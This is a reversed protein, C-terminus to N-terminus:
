WELVREEYELRGKLVPSAAAATLTSTASLTFTAAGDTFARGSTSAEVCRSKALASDLFGEAAVSFLVNGNTDKVEIRCGAGVTYATGAPKFLTLSRPIRAVRTNTPLTELTSAAADISGVEAATLSFLKEPM